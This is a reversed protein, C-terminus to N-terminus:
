FIVKTKVKENNAEKKKKSLMNVLTDAAAKKAGAKQAYTVNTWANEDAEKVEEVEDEFEFRARKSSGGPTTPTEPVKALSRPIAKPKDVVKTVNGVEEKLEKFQKENQKVFGVM